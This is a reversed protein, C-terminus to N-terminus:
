PNNSSLDVGYFQELVIVFITSIILLFLNLITILFPRRFKGDLAMIKKQVDEPLTKRKRKTYLFLMYDGIRMSKFIFSDGTMERHWVIKDMVKMQNRSLYYMMFINFIVSFFLFIGVFFDLKELLNMEFYSM